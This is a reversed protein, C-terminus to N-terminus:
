LGKLGYVTSTEDQDSNRCCVVLKNGAITMSGVEEIPTPFQDFVQLTEGQPTIVFIRKGAAKKETSWDEVDLEEGDPGTERAWDEEDGGLYESVFLRGKYHEVVRPERWPGRMARLYEGSLSFVHLCRTPIDCCFLEDAAVTWGAGASVVPPFQFRFREELTRADLAITSAMSYMEAFAINNPALTLASFSTCEAHEYSAVVSSTTGDFEYRCLRTGATGDAILVYLSDDSM